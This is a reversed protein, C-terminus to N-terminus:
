CSGVPRFIRVPGETKYPQFGLLKIWVGAKPHPSVTAIEVTYEPHAAIQEALFWRLMKTASKGVRSFRDSIHLWTRVLGPEDEMAGTFALPEDGDRLAYAWPSDLYVRMGEKIHEVDRYGFILLEELTRQGLNAAIHEIDAETARVIKLM